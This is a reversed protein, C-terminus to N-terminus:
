NGGAVMNATMQSVAAEYAAVGVYSVVSMAILYNVFSRAKEEPTHPRPTEHVSLRATSPEGWGGHGPGVGSALEMQGHAIPTRHKTMDALRILDASQVAPSPLTCMVATTARESVAAVSAQSM